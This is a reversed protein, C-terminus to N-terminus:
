TKSRRPPSRTWPPVRNTWSSVGGPRAALARAICLRQQQGGIPFTAPAFLKDEVEGWLAAGQLSEIVVKDTEERSPRGNFRLAASVNDYISMTAFPNPRQFVM